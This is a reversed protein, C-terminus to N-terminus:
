SLIPASQKEQKCHLERLAAIRSRGSLYTFTIGGVFLVVGALLEMVLINPSDPEQDDEPGFM